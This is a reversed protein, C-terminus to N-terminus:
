NQPAGADIWIKIQRLNCSSLKTTSNPMAKTAGSLHNISNWLKSNNVVTKVGNYNTLTVGGSGGAGHCGVCNDTLIKTITSSYTVNSSDCPSGLDDCWLNKAGQDIWKKILSVKDAPLPGSPPMRDNPDTDIIAQYVKSGAANFPKIKGGAMAKLYTTFDLGEAPSNGSHCGTGVCYASFIPQIDRAYYVTDPSCPRKPKTTDINSTDKPDQPLPIIDPTHKCSEIVSFSIVALLLFILIKRM